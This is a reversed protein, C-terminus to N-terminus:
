RRGRLQYLLLIALLVILVVILGQNSFIKKEEEIRIIGRAVSSHARGGDEYSMSVFVVYTSGPLASFSSVEFDIEKEASPNIILSKESELADLERPLYLRVKVSYSEEDPNRIVLKLKEKDDGALVTEDMKGFLNTSTREKFIINFPTLASFPYSNADKYNV